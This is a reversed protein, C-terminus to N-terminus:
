IDLEYVTYKVYIEGIPIDYLKIMDNINKVNYYPVYLLLGNLEKDVFTKDKGGELEDPDNAYNLGVNHLKEHLWSASNYKPFYVYTYSGSSSTIGPQDLSNIIEDFSMGHEQQLFRYDEASVVLGGTGDNFRICEVKTTDDKIRNMKAATRLYPRLEEPDANKLIYAKTVVDPDNNENIIHLSKTDKEIHIRPQIQLQSPEPQPTPAGSNNASFANFTLLVASLVALTKTSFIKEM